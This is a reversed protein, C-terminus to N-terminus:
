SGFVKRRGVSRGVKGDEIGFNQAGTRIQRQAERQRVGVGVCREVIVTGLEIGAELLFLTRLRLCSLGAKVAM